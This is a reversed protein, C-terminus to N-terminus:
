VTPKGSFFYRLHDEKTAPACYTGLVFFVISAAFAPVIPHFGLLNPKILLLALYVGLGGLVSVLAGCANARRWFLGLVLPLLFALELGGFAAMNIWAVLDNPYLAFLLSLLGLVLTCGRSLRAIGRPNERWKPNARGLLDEIIASSAALLLSSVTSMTAALPGILTLGAVVPNMYHVIVLPIVRDTNAGVMAPTIDPLGRAFVGLLTMGIMLAGCVITSVLMARHLDSTSKYSMARVASQPLGATGFGVLVWASFLLTFPLAGGANPSLFDQAGHAKVTEASAAAAQMVQTIGGGLDLLVWGLVIMGGLMVFACLTDTIAVARFGGFATYFLTLLGFALLGAKYDIGAVASFITAGGIMQGTMMTTFFVLLALACIVGLVPSAFRERLVDIVTISGTARSVLALKKGLLGLLLFGAIIQPAAFVVWGLGFRWAIGPGSVFSSVSGYTAVLTMALVFGSLSRNGLFYDLAFSGDGSSRAARRRGEWVSLLALGAFFLIIPAFLLVTNM